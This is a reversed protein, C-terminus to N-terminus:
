EIVREEPISDYVKRRKGLIVLKELFTRDDRVGKPIVEYRVRIRNGEERILFYNLRYAPVFVDPLLRFFAPVRELMKLWTGTNIVYRNGVSRLSPIHTHGYLYLVVSPDQEFVSKAAALYHEEKDLKLGKSTDVGFRQLAAKIDRTLFYVPIALVAAFSIVVGNVWVVWDVLRGPLSASEVLRAHFFTTPLIGISELARGLLILGSFTFLFLFPVLFWRLIPAMERYFYNSWIWFPIEENPYV